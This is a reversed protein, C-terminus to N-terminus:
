SITIPYFKSNYFISYILQGVIIKLRHTNINFIQAQTEVDIGIGNDEIKLLLENEQAQVVIKIRKSPKKKDQYKIANSILNNLIYRLRSKDSCFVGDQQVSVDFTVESANEFYEYEKLVSQM